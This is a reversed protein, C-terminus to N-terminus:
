KQRSQLAKPILINDKMKEKRISNQRIGKESQALKELAGGLIGYRINHLPVYYSLGSVLGPSPNAGERKIDNCLM